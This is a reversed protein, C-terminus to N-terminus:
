LLSFPNLDKQTNELVLGPRGAMLEMWLSFIFPFLFQLPAASSLLATILVSVLSISFCFHHNKTQDAACLEGSKMWCIMTCVDLVLLILKAEQFVGALGPFINIKNSNVMKVSGCQYHHSHFKKKFAFSKSKLRPAVKAELEQLTRQFDPVWTHQLTPNKCLLLLQSKHPSSTEFYQAFVDAPVAQSSEAKEEEKRGETQKCLDWREWDLSSPFHLM